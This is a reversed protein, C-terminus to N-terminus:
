SAAGAAQARAREAARALASRRLVECVCLGVRYGGESERGSMVLAGAPREALSRALRRPRHCLVMMPRRDAYLADALASWAGDGDRLDLMVIDGRLPLADDRPPGAATVAYGCRTLTEELATGPGGQSGLVLIQVAQM